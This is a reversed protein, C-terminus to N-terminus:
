AKRGGETTGNRGAKGADDAVPEVQATRQANARAAESAKRLAEMARPGLLGSDVPHHKRSRTLSAQRRRAPGTAVTAALPGRAAVGAVAVLVPRALPWLVLVVLVGLVLGAVVDGPYEAGVYVRSFALLLAALLGVGALLWRKALTL